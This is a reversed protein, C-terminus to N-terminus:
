NRSNLVLRLLYWIEIALVVSLVPLLWYTQDHLFLLDFGGKTAVQLQYLIMLHSPDFFPVSAFHEYVTKM